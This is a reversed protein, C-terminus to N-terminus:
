QPLRVAQPQGDRGVLLDVQVWDAATEPNVPLGMAGLASRRLRVQMIAADETDSPFTGPLLTFGSTDSDAVLIEDANLDGAASGAAPGPSVLSGAPAANHKAAETTKSTKWSHWSVAGVLTAATALVWM